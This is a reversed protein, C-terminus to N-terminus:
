DIQPRVGRGKKSGQQEQEMRMLQRATKLAQYYRRELLLRNIRELPASSGSVTQSVEYALPWYARYHTGENEEDVYLLQVVLYLRSAPSTAAAPGLVDKERLVPVQNEVTLRCAASNNRIVAGGLIVREGPRLSIKLPM